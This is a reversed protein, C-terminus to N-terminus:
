NGLLVGLLETASAKDLLQNGNGCKPSMCCTPCGSDCGCGQLRELTAGWWDEAVQFGREAFGSGGPAGDHVFITCQNTDPHLVTSLGGIDWRDCPAFAPLLGIATHEAAHAAAGLRVASFALEAVVEDPVLWWMAQTTMRHVPLDLPTSDWVDGTVSDRRLYSTVQDALEVVGHCVVGRGGRRRALESIIHVESVGMPQTYYPLELQKVMSVSEAPLYRTVLWQEGLHLYVAGEHVTRDAAGRDVSGVVRGTGAEIIEVPRGIAGRLDIADVAREPRTWFWGAPRGRLLGQTSLGAALDSMTEGFWREDGPKLPAEQAAAALHPGLVYPNQPCLVTQEVPRDFILEPHDLLHADLPDDRAVLVVLADREGRGARGAQQWFSELTGPFGTIVVADLGAIDVGLELANTAAVGALERNRLRAELERRDGALYGSRYSAVRRGSEIREAARLSILEAQSRSAVFTIVQQGDDVLRALLESAERPAESAPKWLIVDRSPHPSADQNVEHLPSDEGILLAGSAGANSATASALVFVPDSGYAACLRRLRRLVASVQSGFVGRYRHAEDVAVYRLSGLLGAWRAHNPLVSRHLMDPNSLVLGAHERAFRREDTASDGDLTAVQWGPPGLRRASVRQDHALAKTPALYLATHRGVGLRSRLDGTTVGLSARQPPVATAAMIPMLYALSKGSATPTSIAVHRGSWAAEAAVVQHTWPRGIGAAVISERVEEPLWSPWDTTAGALRARHRVAVVRADDALWGPVAM